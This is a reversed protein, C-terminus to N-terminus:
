RRGGRGRRDPPLRRRGAGDRGTSADLDDALAAIVDASVEGDLSLLQLADEGLQPLHVSARRLAEIIAAVFRVPDADAPDCSLWAAPRQPDPPWGTPWCPPRARGPRAWWWPSALGSDETWRTSCGPGACWAPHHAPLMSSPPRFGLVAFVSGGTNRGVWWGRNGELRQRGPSTAGERRGCPLSMGDPPSDLEGPSPSSPLWVPGFSTASSPTM